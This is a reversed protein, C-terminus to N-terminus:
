SKWGCRRCMKCNNSYRLDPGGGKKSYKWYVTGREQCQPCQEQSFYAFLGLTLPFLFVMAVIVEM